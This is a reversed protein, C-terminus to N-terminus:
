FFDKIVRVIRQYAKGDVVNRGKSILKNRYEYSSFFNKIKLFNINGKLDNLTMVMNKKELFYNQKRQETNQNIIISPTGYHILEYKTLGSLSVAGDCLMYFKEINNVNFHLKLNKPYENKLRKIKLINKENFLKGILISLNLDKNLSLAIKAVKYSFNLQDSGGCTILLNKFQKGSRSKKKIKPKLVFYKTGLLYKTKEKFIIKRKDFFYPVMIVKATLGNINNIMFKGFSDIVFLKNSIKILTKKLKPFNKNSMIKKNSIDILVCNYKKFSNYHFYDYIKDLNFNKKLDGSFSIHKSEFDRNLQVNLNKCRSYHGFGIDKSIISIILIKKKRM